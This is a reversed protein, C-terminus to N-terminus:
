RRPVRCRVVTGQGDNTTIEIRAGIAAARERLGRLGYSDPRGGGMGKGDDSVEVLIEGDGVEYLVDIHSASAHREANVIAEQTILWLEREQRPPLQHRVRHQFHVDLDSRSEVRSLFETVTAVLNRDTTVETRLDYLTERLETVIGRVHGRVTEVHEALAPDADDDIARRVADLEFGVLAVSQGLRDHLDRAIRLREDDAATREIARFWRANDIALAVPEVMQQALESVHVVDIGREDLYELVLLGLDRNRSRLHIGVSLTAIGSLSRAPDGVSLGPKSRSAGALHPALQEDTVFTPLYAGDAGAVSWGPLDKEILLIAIVDAGTLARANAVTRDMVDRLDLSAPLHLALDHLKELLENAGRLRALSAAQAANAQQVSTVSRAAFNTVGTIILLVFTGQSAITLEDPGLDIDATWAATVLGSALLAMAAPLLGQESLGVILLAPMLSPTLPSNWGGTLAVAGTAVAVEAVLALGLRRPTTGLIPHRWRWLSWITVAALAGAAGASPPDGLLLTASLVAGVARAIAIRGRFQDLASRAVVRGDADVSPRPFRRREAIEVM